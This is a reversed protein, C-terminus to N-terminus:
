PTEKMARIAAACEELTIEHRISQSAREDVIKAAEELVRNRLERERAQAAAETDTLAVDIAELKRRYYNEGHKDTSTDFGVEVHERCDALVERLAAVQSRLAAASQPATYLPKWRGKDDDHYTAQWAYISFCNGFEDIWGVQERESM